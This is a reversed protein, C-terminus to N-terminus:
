KSTDAVMGWDKDFWYESDEFDDFEKEFFDDVKEDNKLVYYYHNHM